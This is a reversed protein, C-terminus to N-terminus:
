REVEDTTAGDRGQGLGDGLAFPKGHGPYAALDQPLDRYVAMSSKMDTESGGPLDHRGPGDSMLMDGTFLADDFRLSVSGPTHGPTALIECHFPGINLREVDGLQQFETPVRISTKGDFVLRYLNARRLLPGDAEHLHFPIDYREMLDSVAGIHDFHAHTNLIAIPTLSRRELEAVISEFESGPDVLLADGEGSDVIYCNQRWPGNVFQVVDM